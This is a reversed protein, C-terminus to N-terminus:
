KNYLYLGGYVIVVSTVVGIAVGTWFSTGFFPKKVPNYNKKLKAIQEEKLALLSEYKDRDTERLKLCIDEKKKSQLTHYDVTNQLKLEFEKKMTDFTSIINAVGEFSILYGSFLNTEGKMVISFEGKQLGLAMSSADKTQACVASSTLMLLIFLIYKM